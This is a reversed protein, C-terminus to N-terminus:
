VDYTVPAETNGIVRHNDNYVDAYEPGSWQQGSRVGDEEREARLGDAIRGAYDFLGEGERRRMMGSKEAEGSASRFLDMLKADSVEDPVLREGHIASTSADRIPNEYIEVNTCMVDHVGSSGKRENQITFRVYYDKGEVNAKAIYYDYNEINRHEKHVTGDPRTKGAMNEQSSFGYLSNEFLIKLHAAVKAFMSNEGRWMKGFVSHYFSVTKGDAKNTASGLSNYAARVDEKKTSGVEITVPELNKIADVRAKVEGNSSSEERGERLSFRVNDNDEMAESFARRRDGDKQKDYEYIAVGADELGKRVDSNVTSPVVALAFEDLTVPREFKTEFYMTPREKRIADVLSHMKAVDNDTLDVGYEKKVYEKPDNKLAVEALRYYGADDFLQRPNPNLTKALENFVPKWKDLFKDVDEHSDALRNKRKRIESLSGTKELVAAVFNNFTFAQGTAGNLGQRKMIKSVHELDNPAYRRRGSPTFGDFIVEKIDYQRDKHELWDALEGRLNHSDVYDQVAMLTRDMDPAGSRRHDVNVDNVFRQVATARFGYEEYMRLDQKAVASRLGGNAAVAKTAKLWGQMSQEYAEMDGGYNADVYVKLVKGRAAKDLDTIRPKGAMISKLKNYVDEDYVSPMKQIEPAEGREHLFLYALGGSVDGSDLYRDIGNRVVGQMDSPVSRVDSFAREWGKNSMQREVTPYTPTWADGFFTGANRGTRKAVKDKPMILSIEGFGEHQHKSSDIVAVSPNALGGLKLAKKLKDESINHVGVLTKDSEGRLSYRRTGNNASAIKPNESLKAVNADSFTGPAVATSGYTGDAPALTTAPVDKNYATLVWNKDAIKKGNERVNRRITVIYGDKILTLKDANSHRNDVDGNNIIAELHSVLDKVTPFDKDNIHKSLIHCLGGGDDGWVMDIDGIGKRHFVGLLDGSEHNVLFKVAQLAKGKFQDYVNGFISRGIPKPEGGEEREARLGDAIRGAYDLLGEGERRRMMETKTKGAEVSASESNRAVNAESVANDSTRASSQTNTSKRSLSESIATKRNSYFDHFIEKKGKKDTYVTFRVGDIEKQYVVNEGKDTRKGTKVVDPILRLEDFSVVGSKTGVHRFISHKTGANNENGQQMELQISIGDYNTIDISRRDKKCSFVDVVAQEETTLTKGEYHKGIEAMRKNTRSGMDSEGRLSYRRNGNNASAIKPNESLKAVNADSLDHTPSSLAGAEEKTSPLILLQGDEREAQRKIKELGRKDIYHWHVIEVNDKNPSVELLVTRNKGKEDKTNVLVWNYPRTAKRNQGYLDPSYLAANFIIKSQEPTVDSHRWNNREFINKKIIVPKGNTGIADAVKKPLSPLQINRSPRLFDEDTLEDVSKIKELRLTGDDNLPNGQNDRLSYREGCEEREARLGDAIRGAYDLLGEGERRRM